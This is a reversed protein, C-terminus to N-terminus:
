DREITKNGKIELPNLRSSSCVYVQPFELITEKLRKIGNNHNGQLVPLTEM